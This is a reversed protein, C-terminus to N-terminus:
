TRRALSLVVLGAPLSPNHNHPRTVTTRCRPIQRSRNAPPGPQHRDSSGGWAGRKRATWAHRPDDHLLHMQESLRNRELWGVATDLKALTM